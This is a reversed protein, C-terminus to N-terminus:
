EMNPTTIEDTQRDTPRHWIKVCFQSMGHDLGGLSSGSQINLITEQSKEADNTIGWWLFQIPIYSHDTCMCGDTYGEMQRFVIGERGCFKLIIRVLHTNSQSLKDSVSM